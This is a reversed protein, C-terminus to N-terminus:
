QKNHPPQLWNKWETLWDEGSGRAYRNVFKERVAIVNPKNWWTEPEHIVSTLHRAASVASPHFIGVEQLELLESESEKRVPWIKPDWVIVTPYGNAMTELFGTGNHDYVFLNYEKLVFSMKRLELRPNTNSERYWAGDENGYLRPYPRFACREFVNPQLQEFLEQQLRFYSGMQGGLPGSQIRHAHRPRASGIVLCQSNRSKFPRFKPCDAIRLSPLPLHNNGSKWGWTIYHDACLAEHIEEPCYDFMGYGGGHQVGILSAGSEFLRAAYFGFAEDYAFGISTLVKSIRDIPLKFAQNRWLKFDELFATPMMFPLCAGLVKEFRDESELVNFCNKRLSFDVRNLKKPTRGVDTLCVSSDVEKLLCLQQKISAGFRIFLTKKKGFSRLRNVLNFSSYVWSLIRFPLSFVPRQIVLENEHPAPGETPEVRWGMETAVLGFLFAKHFASVQTQVIQIAVRPIYDQHHPLKRTWIEKGFEREVQEAHIFLEYLNHIAHFLWCGLLIRWQRKDYEVGHLENLRDGLQQLTRENIVELYEAAKAREGKKEWVCPGIWHGTDVLEPDNEREFCWRGLFAMQGDKPWIERYGSAAVYISKGISM